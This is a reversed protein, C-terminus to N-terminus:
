IGKTLDIRQGEKLTVFFIKKGTALYEFRSFRKNRKPRTSSNIKLVDVSYKEKILKQVELKTVQRYASFVYTNTQETCKVAKETYLPLLENSKQLREIKM